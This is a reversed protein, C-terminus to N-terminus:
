RFYRGLRAHWHTHIEVVPVDIIGEKDTGSDVRDGNRVDFNCFGFVSRLCTGEVADLAPSKADGVEANVAKVLLVMLFLIKLITKSMFAM